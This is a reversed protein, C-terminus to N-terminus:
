KRRADAPSEKQVSQRKDIMAQLQDKNKVIVADPVADPLITEINRLPRYALGVCGWLLELLGVMIFMLAMGRGAGTGIVSGIAAQISGTSKMFPEFINDAMTGAIVALPAMILALMQNVSFVRGQLELGVKTQIIIAWHTNMFSIAIGVSFLAIATLIISPQLGFLVFSAGSLMVFGIMGDSRRRTGGWISIIFSGVLIGASQAAVILGLSTATTFTLLLPTILISAFTALFNDVIFFVVLAIMSKRKLIFRWGGLLEKHFPEERKRFLANPFRVLLLTIISVLFTAFDIIVVGTMGIGIVLAGAIAPAIIQGTSLGLQVLGNAQGLYRKPVIQTMAAMFAPRQFAGAIAGLCTALYIYWLQIGSTFLLIAILVTGVAAIIDGLIMVKRRDFRDAIAGAFPALVLGPILGFLTITAFDAVSGSQRYVWVGMAFGSISSGLLSIVQGIAILVLLRLSPKPTKQNAVATPQCEPNPPIATEGQEWIKIQDLIIDRLAMTQHKHFFHGAGDITRLDVTDSFSRWEQYREAFFETTRDREGIVCCIPAKLKRYGVGYNLTNTFYDSYERADHRIAKLLFDQEERNATEDGGGISKLTEKYVKDSIFRDEPLLRHLFEFFKGPLRADPFNAAQFVGRVEIGHTELLAGLQIALAGGVCQGYIAVPGQVHSQIYELCEQAVQSNPKLEKEGSRFDHGPIQVAYLSFGDPMADALPKYTISNGGGYPICILNLQKKATVPRSLELLIESSQPREEQCLYEALQRITPRKILAVVSLSPDIKKVARISKFSDGGLDFFNDDIGIDKIDLIESWIAAIRSEESTRPLVLIRDAMAQNQDLTPLRKFDTKGNANRPIEPIDMFFAPVMYDPLKSRLHQKLEATTAQPSVAQHRVLYAVLRTDGQPDTVVTILAQQIGPTSRLVAEIGEPEVRYGRIKIQRDIRGYIGISSDHLYKVMDGTRYVRQGSQRNMHDPLFKETTLNPLKYYARALGPGGIYLEGLVGHPVIQGHTNLIYTRVGDLPTGLPVVLHRAKNEPDISHCLMSVTTETPGYNNFLRCQPNLQHAKRVHEWKCAEGAFILIRKPVVAQPDDLVQLAEFHSPVIKMADIRNARFYEAFKEPDAAREYSLIHVQGGTCLPVYVNTTGLDAAFTSVIAFNLPENIGLAPIIGSLYNLFSGHEIMVGKPQGTSGSTFIIYMLNQANANAPPNETSLKGIKPWDSDLSIAEVDVLYPCIGVTQSHTLVIGVDSEQLIAAIREPPNMTDIPVYAGGAKLIGLIGVMIDLSREILLGVGIDPGV